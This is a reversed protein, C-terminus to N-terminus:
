QSLISREEILSVPEEPPDPENNGLDPDIDDGNMNDTNADGNGFADLGEMDLDHNIQVALYAILDNYEQWGGYDCSCGYIVDYFFDYLDSEGAQAGAETLLSAAGFLLAFIIFLKKM